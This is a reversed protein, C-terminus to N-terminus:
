NLSCTKYGFDSRLRASHSCAFAAATVAHEKTICFLYTQTKSIYRGLLLIFSHYIYVHKM